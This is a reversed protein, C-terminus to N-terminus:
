PLKKVETSNGGAQLSAPNWKLYETKLVESEKKQKNRFHHLLKLHMEKLAPCSYNCSLFFSLNLNIILRLSVKILFLFAPKEFYYFLQSSSLLHPSLNKEREVVFGRIHSSLKPNGGKGEFYTYQFIEHSTTHLCLPGHFYNEVAKTLGILRKGLKM